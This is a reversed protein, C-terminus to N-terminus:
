LNRIVLLDEDSMSYVLEALEEGSEWSIMKDEIMKWVDERLSIEVSKTNEKDSFIARPEGMEEVIINGKGMTCGSSLQIGDIMCSMPTVTGSFVRAVKKLANDGFERNAALGMRYGIAAYPGLHGHFDKIKQLTEDM